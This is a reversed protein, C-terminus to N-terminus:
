GFRRSWQLVVVVLGTLVVAAMGLVALQKRRHSSTSVCPEPVSLMGVLVDRQAAAAISFAIRYLGPTALFAGRIAYAGAPKMPDARLMLAPRSGGDVQTVMAEISAARVPDRTLAHRLHLVM